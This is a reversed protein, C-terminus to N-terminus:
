IGMNHYTVYDTSLYGQLYQGNYYTSIFVWKVENEGLDDIPLPNGSNDFGLMVAFMLRNPLKALIDSKTSPEARLNLNSSVGKTKVYGIFEYGRMLDILTESNANYGYSQATRLLFSAFNEESHHECYKLSATDITTKQEEKLDGNQYRFIYYGGDYAEYHIIMNDIGNQDFDGLWIECNGTDGPLFYWAIYFLNYLYGKEHNSLTSRSKTTQTTAAFTTASTTASTMPTTASATTVSVTSTTLSATAQTFVIGTTIAVSESAGTLATATQETRSSNDAETQATQTDSVSLLPSTEAGTSNTRNQTEKIGLYFFLGGVLFACSLVVAALLVLLGSKKQNGENHNM